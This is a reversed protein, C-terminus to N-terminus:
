YSKRVVKHSRATPFPDSRRQRLDGASLNPDPRLVGVRNKPEGTKVNGAVIALHARGYDGGGDSNQVRTSVQNGDLLHLLQRGRRLYPKHVTTCIRALSFVIMMMIM